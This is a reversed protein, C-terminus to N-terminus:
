FSAYLESSLTLNFILLFFPSFPFFEHLFTVHLWTFIYKRATLPSTFVTLTMIQCGYPVTLLFLPESYQAWLSMEGMRRWRHHGRQGYHSTSLLECHEACATGHGMLDNRIVNTWSHQHGAALTCNLSLMETPSLKRSQQRVGDLIFNLTTNRLRKSFM